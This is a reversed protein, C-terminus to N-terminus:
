ILNRAICFSILRKIAIDNSTDKILDIAKEICAKHIDKHFRDEFSVTKFYWDSYEDIAHSIKDAINWKTLAIDYNDTMRYYTCGLKTFSGRIDLMEMFLANFFKHNTAHIINVNYKNIM